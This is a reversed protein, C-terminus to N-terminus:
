SKRTFADKLKLLVDHTVVNAKATLDTVKAQAVSAVDKVEIAIAQAKTTINDGLVEFKTM